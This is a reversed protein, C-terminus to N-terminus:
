EFVRLVLVLFTLSNRPPRRPQIRADTTKFGVLGTRTCHIPSLVDAKVQAFSFLHELLAAWYAFM